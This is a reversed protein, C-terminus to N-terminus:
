NESHGLESEPRPEFYRVAFWGILAGLVTGAPMTILQGLAASAVDGHDGLYYSAIFGAIRGLWAGEIAAVAKLSIWIVNHIMV